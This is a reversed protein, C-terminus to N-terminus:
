VVLLGMDLFLKNCVVGDDCVTFCRSPVVDIGINNKKNNPAAVVHLVRVQVLVSVLRM